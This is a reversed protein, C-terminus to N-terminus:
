SEQPRLATSSRYSAVRAELLFAERELFERVARALRPDALWHASRTFAPEFGRSLKHEGGAGPEFVSLGRAICDDISHYYCVHFHLFPHEELAGWYRGYLRTASAVNLAGAVVRGERRAEVWEVGPVTRLIRAFFDRNLYRMGWVMKDVTSLYIRHVLDPDLARVEDGRLTRIEIGQKAAAARERRLNARQKAPFRALFDDWTRYGANRWHYQLGVRTAYGASELAEGQGDTPFLVHVGSLGLERAVEVAALSLATELAARDEGPAVLFREGTAPTFPVAVTLKPYYRIGAREAAEAWGWDFVFEGRSDARVWAPAAAVLREGRWLTLHRPTWGTEPAAAGSAELADIWAHALFPTSDRGLLADWSAAPVEAIAGLLRLTTSPTSM